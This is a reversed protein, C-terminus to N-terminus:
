EKYIDEERILAELRREIIKSKMAKQREPDSIPLSTDITLSYLLPNPEGFRKLEAGGEPEIGASMGIRSYESLFRRIGLYTFALQMWAFNRADQNTGFRPQEREPGFSPSGAYDRHVDYKYNFKDKCYDHVDSGFMKTMWVFDAPVKPPRSGERDEMGELIHDILPQFQMEQLLDLMHNQQEGKMFSYLLTFVNISTEFVEVSPNAPGYRAHDMRDFDAKFMSYFRKKGEDQSYLWTEQQQQQRMSLRVSAVVVGPGKGEVTARYMSNVTEMMMQRRFAWFLTLNGAVQREVNPVAGYDLLSRQALEAADDVSKGEKIASLFVTRRFFNDQSDAMDQWVNKKWPAITREINKASLGAVSKGALSLNSAKLLDDAMVESFEVSGRTFGINTKALVQKLEGKTWARGLDSTFLVASDPKSDGIIALSDRMHRTSLGMRRLGLTVAMIPLATLINQGMYRPNPFPFGALLGSTMTRRAATWGSALIHAGRWGIGKDIAHLSNLTAALRTTSTLKQMDKLQRAETSGLIMSRSGASTEFQVSGRTMTNILDNGLVLGHNRYAQQLHFLADNVATVIPADFLTTPGTAGTYMNFLKTDLKKLIRAQKTASLAKFETQASVFDKVRQGIDAFPLELDHRFSKYLSSLDPNTTKQEMIKTNIDKLIQRRNKTTTKQVAEIHMQSLRSVINTDKSLAERKKFLVERSAKWQLLTKDAMIAKKVEDFPTGFRQAKWWWDDMYTKLKSEIKNTLEKIQNPIDKTTPAGILRSIENFFREYSREVASIDLEAYMSNPTPAFDVSYQPNADLFEDFRQSFILGRRVGLMWDIMAPLPAEDGKILTKLGKGRLEPYLAETKRRITEFNKVTFDFLNSARSQEVWETVDRKRLIGTLSKNSIGEKVLTDILNGSKDSGYYAKLIGEWADAKEEFLKFDLVIRRRVAEENGVVNKMARAVHAEIQAEKKPLMFRIYKQWSGDLDTKVFRDAEMITKAALDEWVQTAVSNFGKVPDDPSLKQAQRLEESLRPFVTDLENNVSRQFNWFEPAVDIDEVTQLFKKPTVGFWPIKDTAVVRMASVIDKTSIALSSIGSALEDPVLARKLQEGGYRLDFADLHKKAYHGKLHKEVFMRENGTLKGKLLNSLTEQLTKSKRITAAGVESIVINAIENRVPKSPIRHVDKKTSYKFRALKESVARKWADVKNIDQMSQRPAVVAGSVVTLNEPLMNLVSTKANQSVAKTTAELIDDVSAAGLEPYNSLNFPKKKQTAVKQLVKDLDQRSMSDAMKALRVRFLNDQIQMGLRSAGRKAAKGKGLAVSMEAGTEAQNILRAMMPNLGGAETLAKRSKKLVARYHNTLTVNSPRNLLKSKLASPPRNLILTDDLQGAKAMEDMWVVDTIHTAFNDSAAEKLSSGDLHREWREPSSWPAEDAIKRLEQASAGTKATDAIEDVLRETKKYKAYRLPSSAASIAEGAKPAAKAVQRGGKSAMKSVFRPVAIIGTAPMYFEAAMGTWWPLDEGLYAWMAMAPGFPARTYSAPSAAAHEAVVEGAETIGPSAAFLQPMGQGKAINVIVQDAWEGSDALKYEDTEEPSIFPLPQVTAAVGASFAGLGGRLGTALPTEVMQGTEYSPTMLHPAVAQIAKDEWPADEPLESQLWRQMAEFDEGQALIQPKFSEALLEARTGKRYQRLQPDYILGSEVDRILSATSPGVGGASTRGYETTAKELAIPEVSEMAQRAAEPATEGELRKHLARDSVLQVSAAQPDSTPMYPYLNSPPEEGPQPVPGGDMANLYQAASIEGNLYKQFIEETTPEAM